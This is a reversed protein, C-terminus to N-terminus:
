RCVFVDEFMAEDLRIATQVARNLWGTGKWEVAVVAAVAAVAAAAVVGVMRGVGAPMTKPEMTRAFFM